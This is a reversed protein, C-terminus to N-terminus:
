FSGPSFVRFGVDDSFDDPVDRDRSACRALGRGYNWSGGRVVRNVQQKEYWSDTWEWVNGSLDCIEQSVDLANFQGVVTTSALKRSDSGLWKEWDLNDDEGWFEACNLRTHDFVDGWPYERGDTGRAVREWEEEAPLRIPRKLEVSLWSCYAEAEFWTVGVVPALPNNWKPDNWYFPLNRKEVLRKALWNKYEQPARTDYTGTRWAWGDASWWQRQQYGGADVFRRYQRNTVPYRAVAFPQDITLRRKNDGYLFPRAPIPVFADLDDPAWGLRGLSFGADRQVAPPLARNRWAALLAQTVEGAALRGVGTDGVDELCAGALLVNQCADGAARGCDMKLMARVVEGAVKPQKNALGWVGVALLITERWAPDTLHEQIVALSDQLKLQGMQYLGYAALMEEFTLHIFGYRGQGRELVLNSYTRVSKLFGRGKEAAPGRPLGWDEGMYYKTLWDLLAAEPVVGAAPNEQRLWLALPGLTSLIELYDMEPGVQRHDLARAKSWASILTKLYLEYLEVRRNPLAVGQRKILALITLLLPNSALRAVGPNADLAALLDYREKEAEAAAQPTDGLTSKEFALCWKEAFQEIAPRDFDLLTYLSWSRPDLPSERYGVIRSTVVLKNGRAAAEAAFAQVKHVLRPRDSQVEDLGDLLIVAQGQAIARDFLPALNALEQTIGAFHQPLYAQLNLDGQELAIAYANLPALIPLPAGPEDALRLALHKLLTTKGSGPDGLVVVRKKKEERGLAEEVRLPPSAAKELAALAQEPLTGAELLRGALRREWTEGGPMEPRALLPVYVEELLLERSFTDLQPIGKFDLARYAGKLHALYDDRLKELDPPPQFPQMQILYTIKDGLVKDGGVHDGQIDDGYHQQGGIHAKGDPQVELRGVAAGGQTIKKATQKIETTAQVPTEPEVVVPKGCNPCFKSGEPLQTKCAPCISM